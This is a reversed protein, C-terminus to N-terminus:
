IKNETLIECDILEIQKNGLNLLTSVRKIEVIELNDNHNKM